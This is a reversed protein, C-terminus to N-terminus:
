ACNRARRKLAYGALDRPRYRDTAGAPSECCRGGVWWRLSNLSLYTPVGWCGWRFGRYDVNKLGTRYPNVKGRDVRASKLGPIAGLLLLTQVSSIPSHLVRRMRSNLRLRLIRASSM